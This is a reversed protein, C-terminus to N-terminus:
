IELNRLVSHVTFSHVALRACLLRFGLRAFLRVASLASFVQAFFRRSFGFCMLHSKVRSYNRSLRKPQGRMARTVDDSPSHVM